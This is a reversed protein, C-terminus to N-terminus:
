DQYVPFQHNSIVGILTKLQSIHRTWSYQMEAHQRCSDRLNNYKNKDYFYIKISKQIGDAIAEPSTGRLLLQSNFHSLIEKTGGIPTGLVPTGCALSEPTVLGFGELARTPLIFFDAAGYYKPLKENPIFGTLTIKDLLNLDHILKEMKKREPGEGGVTLHLKLKKGKLIDVSKILNDLGMRYELNRVTLLHIHDKPLGINEKELDRNKLPRFRELNVGGPNVIIYKESIKHTKILRNKMYRSLVMVKHSNKVAFKEIYFRFYSNLFINIKSSVKKSLFYEEHSPSHFVYIIPIKKTRKKIILPFLTFPQHSIIVQFPKNNQLKDFLKVPNKLVSTAFSVLNSKDAYYSESRIKNSIGIKSKGNNSKRTIASIDFGSQNLNIVQNNLVVESGSTTDGLPVDATFLIKM